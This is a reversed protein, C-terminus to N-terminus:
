AGTTSREKSRQPQSNALPAASGRSPPDSAVHDPLAEPAASQTTPATDETAMTTTEQPSTGTSCSKGGARNMCLGLACMAVCPLVGILIPAIGATVLWNWNLALGATIALGALILLGRRGGFYYRAAYILDQTLPTETPETSRSTTM